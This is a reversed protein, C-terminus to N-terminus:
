SLSFFSKYNPNIFKYYNDTDAFKVAVAQANDTDIIKYVQMDMNIVSDGSNIEVSVTQLLEGIENEAVLTNDKSYDIVIYDNESDGGESGQQGNIPSVIIENKKKISFTVESNRFVDEMDVTPPETPEPAEKGDEATPQETTEAQTTEPVSETVTTVAAATTDVTQVVSSVSTVPAVETTEQTIM